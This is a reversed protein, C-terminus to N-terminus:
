AGRLGRKGSYNVSYNNKTMLWNVLKDVFIKDVETLRVNKKIDKEYRIILNLFTVYGKVRNESLGINSTGKIKHTPANDIIFQTQVTLLNNSEDSKGMRNFCNEVITELWYRNIIEGKSNSENLKDFVYSDLKKLDNFLKKNTDNNQKPRKTSISWDDPSISFSTKVQIIKDRGLSLYVLIPHKDQSVKRLRFNVTAM